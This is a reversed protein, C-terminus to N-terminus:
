DYKFNHRLCDVSFPITQSLWIGSFGSDNLISRATNIWDTKYIVLEHLKYLISYIMNSIKNQNSSVLKAWYVVMRISVDISLPTVGLEGYIM